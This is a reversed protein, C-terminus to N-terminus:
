FISHGGIKPGLSHKPGKFGKLLFLQTGLQSKLYKFISRFIKATCQSFARFRQIAKVCVKKNRDSHDTVFVVIPNLIGINAFEKFNEVKLLVRFGLNLSQLAVM